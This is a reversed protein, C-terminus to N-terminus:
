FEVTYSINPVLIMEREEEIIGEQLNYRHGYFDRYGTLNMMQASWVTTIRRRITRYEFTLDTYFVMPERNMFARSEDYVVERREHTLPENVPSVRGGGMLSLSGSVSLMRLRSNSGFEWEKGGLLATTYNRNFRTDRWVDDGGRYRSNFLSGSLLGFWGNSFYRELTIDVGYNRGAGENILRDDLFWDLEMNILSFSSDPIVPVGSLWQHYVEVNMNIDPSLMRSDGAVLHDAKALKLNRNDPHAFYVSLPETQSHRGYALSYTSQGAQYQLGLRPEVSTSSTLVFHQVHAGATFTFRGTNFRSQTFGQYLYSHGTQDVITRQPIDPDNTFQIRQNYGLRNLTFGTRNTHRSGTSYNLITKATLKGTESRIYERPYLVAGDDTFRDTENRFGNGSAALTTSLMAGRGVSIRHRIGAAGFRTPSTQDERDQNFVWDDPSAGATQGSRDMAGIGWLSFTGAEGAPLNLKYSLNQYMTGDADEPLVPAILTFTSYRYNFLYSSAETGPIPGESALDLGITGASATHEYQENNGNRINLDFVGSLANGYEAPFAGTFFDSDAIMRSSLATIGGGGMALINAFHSPTPIEIGEMQWLLGKPANGRIVIANNGLTGAVGAFSTVLRAPDDFGGAYRSAEEMSLLRAGSVAMRNITEDKQQEPRVVINGLETVSERLTVELVVERASTVLQDRVLRPEYGVSSFRLTHRGVPVNNLRFSGNLDTTTGLAQERETVLVTVGPIPAGSGAETVQGRITQTPGQALITLPFFMLVLIPFTILANQKM